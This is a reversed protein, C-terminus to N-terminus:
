INMNKIQYFKKPCSKFTGDILIQKCKYLLNIQFKTTFIIYQELKNNKEPNLLIKYKYCLNLNEMNLINEFTIKIKTIDKLYEEDKPYQYDRLNQLLRKIQNKSLKIGNNKLNEFHFSLPKKLNNFILVKAM